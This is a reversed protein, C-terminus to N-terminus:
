SNYEDADLEVPTYGQLSYKNSDFFPSKHVLFNNCDNQVNLVVFRRNKDDIQTCKYADVDNSSVNFVIRFESEEEFEKKKFSLRLQKLCDAVYFRLSDIDEQDYHPESQYADILEKIRRFVISRQKHVDYIVKLVQFGFFPKHESPPYDKITFFHSHFLHTAIIINVGSDIPKCYNDWMYNNNRNDTFCLVFSMINSLYRPWKFDIMKDIPKLDFLLDYLEKSIVNDILMQKLVEPYISEIITGEDKDEFDSSCTMRFSYCDTKLISSLVNLSTYHYIYSRSINEYSDFYPYAVAMLRASTLNDEEM